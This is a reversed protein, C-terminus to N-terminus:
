SRAAASCRTAPSRGSCRRSCGSSTASGRTSRSVACCRARTPSRRPRRAAPATSRACRRISPTRGASACASSSTWPPVSMWPPASRSTWCAKDGRCTPLDPGRHVAVPTSPDTPTGCANPPRPTSPASSRAPWADRTSPRSPPAPANADGVVHIRPGDPLADLQRYLEDAAQASGGDVVTTVGEVLTDGGALPGGLAVATTGAARATRMPHVAIGLDAFRKLLALRPYTTIKASVTATPSVLHVRAGRRAFAEAVSAASRTGEDDLVVVTGAPRYGPDALHDVAQWVDIVPPGGPLDRRVPRSGTALVVDQYGGSLVDEVGARHGLRVPIGAAAADRALDRTLLGLRERGPVRAAVEVQGGLRDRAEVVTM